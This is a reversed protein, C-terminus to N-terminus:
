IYSIINYKNFISYVDHSLYTHIHQTPQMCLTSKLYCSKSLKSLMRCYIDTYIHNNHFNLLPYITTM